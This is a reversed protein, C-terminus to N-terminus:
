FMTPEPSHVLGEVRIRGHVHQYNYPPDSIGNYCWSGTPLVGGYVQLIHITNLSFSILVEIEEPTLKTRDRWTPDNMAKTVAIEVLEDCLVSTFWGTVM